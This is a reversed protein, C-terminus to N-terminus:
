TAFIVFAAAAFGLGLMQLFTLKERLFAVALAVTILPYMATATTIVATNGGTRYAAFLALGGVGALVGNAVGCSIGKWNKELTFQRSFMLPVVIPLCGFPFLFQLTMAPIDRSAIKGFITWGGWCIMCLISYWFWKKNFTALAAMRPHDHEQPKGPVKLYDDPM